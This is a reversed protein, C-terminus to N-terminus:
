EKNEVDEQGCNAFMKLPELPESGSALGGYSPPSENSADAALPEAPASPAPATAATAGRIPATEAASGGKKRHPM